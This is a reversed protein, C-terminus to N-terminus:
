IAHLAQDRARGLAGRAPRLGMGHPPADASRFPPPYPCYTAWPLGSAEAVYGAGESQIDVILGDPGVEDIARKMDAVEFPQNTEYWSVIRRFAEAQTRATWDDLENAEIRPDVASTRLGLAGLSDVEGARTRLHVEHGRRQLELLTDVVPFLQGPAPSTYALVRAM